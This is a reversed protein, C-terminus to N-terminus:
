IRVHSSNLRTSKRDGDELADGVDVIIAATKCRAIIGVAQAFDAVGRSGRCASGAPNFADALGLEIGVAIGRKGAGGGVAADLDTVANIIVAVAHDVIPKVARVIPIGVAIAVAIDIIRGLSAVGAVVIAGGM